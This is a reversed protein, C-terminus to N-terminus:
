YAKPLKKGRPKLTGKAFNKANAAMGSGGTNTLVPAKAITSAETIPGKAMAGADRM